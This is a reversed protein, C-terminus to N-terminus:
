IRYAPRRARANTTTQVNGSALKESRSDTMVSQDPPLNVVRVRGKLDNAGSVMPITAQQRVTPMKTVLTCDIFLM